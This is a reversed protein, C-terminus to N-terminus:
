LQMNIFTVLVYREGALVNNAGHYHTLRGPHISIGGIVGKVTIDQNKFYTGGGKFADNLTLLTTFTSADHHLALGAQLEPTYKVVFSEYYWKTDIDKDLNYKDVIIPRIYTNLAMMYEKSFDADVDKLLVDYTPYKKNDREGWHDFDNCSQIIASCVPETCFETSFVNGVPEQITCTGDILAKNLRSHLNSM